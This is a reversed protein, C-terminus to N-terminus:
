ERFENQQAFIQVRSQRAVKWKRRHWRQSSSLRERVCVSQGKETKKGGWRQGRRKVGEGGVMHFSSLSVSWVSVRFDPQGSSSEWRYQTVKSSNNLKAM